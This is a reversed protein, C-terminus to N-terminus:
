YTARTPLSQISRLPQVDETDFHGWLLNAVQGLRNAVGLLKSTPVRSQMFEAVVKVDPDIEVNMSTRRHATGSGHMM